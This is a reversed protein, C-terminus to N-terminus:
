IRRCDVAVVEAADLKRLVGNEVCPGLVNLHVNIEIEREIKTLDRRALAQTLTPDKRDLVGVTGGRSGHRIVPDERCRTEDAHDVCLM